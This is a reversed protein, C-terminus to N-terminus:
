TLNIAMCRELWKRMIHLYRINKWLYEFIYNYVHFQPVNMKGSKMYVKQSLLLLLLFNNIRSDKIDQLQTLQAAILNSKM